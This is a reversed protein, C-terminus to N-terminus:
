SFKRPDEELSQYREEFVKITAECLKGQTKDFWDLFKSFIYGVSRYYIYM